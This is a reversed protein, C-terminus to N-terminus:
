KLIVAKKKATLREGDNARFDMIYIYAGPALMAGSDNRGDWPYYHVGFRYHENDILKRVLEGARNYIELTVRGDKPISFIFQTQSRFPNRFNHVDFPPVLIARLVTSDRVDERM